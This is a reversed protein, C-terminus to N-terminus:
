DVFMEGNASEVKSPRSRWATGLAGARSWVTVADGEKMGVIRRSANIVVSFEAGDDAVIKTRTRNDEDGIDVLATVTLHREVEASRDLAGNAVLFLAVTLMPVALASFIRARILHAHSSSRGRILRTVFPQILLAVIIGLIVGLAGLTSADFPPFARWSCFLAGFSLPAMADIALPWPFLLKARPGAIPRPAGAIVRLAALVERVRHPAFGELSRASQYVTIGSSELSISTREELLEVIARRVAPAGLVRRVDADSAESEIYVARDFAEDGTQVERSIGTEKADVEIDTERKLRIAPFGATKVAFDLGVIYGSDIHLDVVSAVGDCRLTLEIALPPAGISASFADLENHGALKYSVLDISTISWAEDDRLVPQSLGCARCTVDPDDGARVVEGCARCLVAHTAEPAPVQSRYASMAM